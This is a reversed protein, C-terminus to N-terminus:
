EAELLQGVDRAASPVHVTETVKVGVASPVLVPVTLTILLSQFLGCVTLKVPVPM